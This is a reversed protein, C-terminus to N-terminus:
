VFEPSQSKEELLFKKRVLSGFIFTFWTQISVSDIRYFRAWPVQQYGSEVALLGVLTFLPSLLSVHVPAIARDIQGRVPV